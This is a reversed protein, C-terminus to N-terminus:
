FALATLPRLRDRVLTLSGPVYQLGDIDNNMLVKLDSKKGMDYPYSVTDCGSLAYMGPLEGRKDGLKDVTARIAFVTNDWKEMLFNKRITKRWTWYVLLLFVDTDDCVIRITEGSSAAAELMYSCLTIDAEEHTVLCVLKNVLQMNNQLTYACLISALLLKYMSDNLMAERCPLQTNPTLHFVKSGGGARRVREHDKVTPEDKYYRDFLVLKQAEPLYRSLRVGFSLALDGATGAVPWGVHHLLQSADVLVVDHAPASNVPVWLCEVLM